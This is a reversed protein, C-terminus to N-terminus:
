DENNLREERIKLVEIFYDVLDKDNDLSKGERITSYFPCWLIHSQSDINGCESCKWLTRENQPDSRQNMKVKIQKSRIRFNVRAQNMSMDKIYPQEGFKENAMPGDKLKSYGMINEKLKSEYKLYVSKKVMKKWKIQSIKLKEDIINPLSFISILQRAENVFGPLNFEKQINFIESALTYEDMNTIHHLLMLKKQYVRYEMSLFGCDWNLATAPTSKPVSFLCRLLTTQLKELRTISKDDIEFWTDANYILKPLIALNFVELGVKIGGLSHMRFDEIVSKLELVSNLCSGYRKSITVEVSKALGGSNLWDGLYKDQMKIEVKNGDISLLNNDNVNKMTKEVEKKKDFIIVGSKDVNLELQKIKVAEGILINAKQVELISTSFNLSDDQFLLPSLKMTLYSAGEVGSFYSTVTRDLNLSSLIGGGISGQAVNEGTTALGTLGFSTKVRIQTDNNLIYWLRYLKGRVGAEYLTEMADKLSEKDFYKSLDWYSMYLPINLYKYLCIISKVSFLHEQSRHGPIGGIQYKSCAQTLTDKSKDVVIGEFFKPEEKKTHINRQFDFDNKDGKGKYIQVIVTNRWQQPKEESEWINSFLSFLCDQYGAGAKVIFKYKDQHKTKLLKLRNDYDGRCLQDGNQQQMDQYRVWHLMDQVFFYQEHKKDINRQTLLDVCYKLSVEKIQNPEYIWARTLPDIMAVQEQTEKRDGCIKTLTKFIAASRGKKQKIMMVKEIENEVEEKQLEFLKGNIAEEVDDISKNEAIKSAKVNLLNQLEKDESKRKIKIKGFAGFKKKTLVKEIRRFTETNTKTDDIVNEFEESMETDTKYKEWGGEKNTNWITHSGKSMKTPKRVPINEFKVIIPFHDSHRSEHKNIPRVPSFARQSDIMMSKFYPLLNRSILILDLCSLNEPNAPDMRTFPGGTTNEHNNLCIFNGEALLSRVLEGGFSVKPHNGRVGLEDCGVHKNMDGLVICAENRSQIKVIENYIRTWRSEIEDNKVRSEQEGYINVVNIPNYFNSHRTIIYEDKELGETVKIAYMKDDDTVSTSVGGMRQGDCRNRNFSKYNSLSIKQRNRLGTENLTVLNPKLQSLISNLSKQKSHYGRINLHFLTWEDDTKCYKKCPRRRGRRIKKRSLKAM